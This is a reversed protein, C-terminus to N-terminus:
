PRACWMTLCIMSAVQDHSYGIEMLGFSVVPKRDASFITRSPDVTM